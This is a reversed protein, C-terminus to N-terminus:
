AILPFSKFNKGPGLLAINLRLIRFHILFNVMKSWISMRIKTMKPTWFTSDMKKSYFRPIKKEKKKLDKLSNPPVNKKETSVLWFYLEYTSLPGLFRCKKALNVNSNQGNQPDFFDIETLEKQFIM